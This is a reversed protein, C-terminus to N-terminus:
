STTIEVSYNYAYTVSGTYPNHATINIGSGAPVGGCKMNIAADSAMISSTLFNTSITSIGVPLNIDALWKWAGAGITDSGQGKKCYKKWAGYDYITWGNADTTKSFTIENQTVKTAAM